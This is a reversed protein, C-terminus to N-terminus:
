RSGCHRKGVWSQSRPTYYPLTRSKLGKAGPPPFLVCDLEKESGGSYQKYLRYIYIYIDPEKMIKM